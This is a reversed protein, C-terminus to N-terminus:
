ILTGEFKSGAPVKPVKLPPPLLWGLIAALPLKALVGFGFPQWQLHFWVYDRGAGKEFTALFPLLSFDQPLLFPPLSLPILLLFAQFPFPGVLRWTKMGM